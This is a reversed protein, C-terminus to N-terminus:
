GNDAEEKDDAPPRKKSGVHDDLEILRALVRGDPIPDGAAYFTTGHWFDRLAVFQKPRIKM